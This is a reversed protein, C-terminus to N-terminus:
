KRDLLTPRRRDLSRRNANGGAAVCIRRDLALRAGRRRGTRAVGQRPRRSRHPRGDLEIRTVPAGLHRGDRIEGATGDAPRFRRSALRLAKAAPLEFRYCGHAGREPEIRVGDAVVHLDPDHIRSFGLTEAQEILRRNVEAVARGSERLPACADNWSLPEFTPHLEVFEGANAFAPRSGCDLFSEAPLGEALLVDHSELEVHWYSVTEVREQVITAGNALHIIPILARDVYVAHQPSLLLDRRPLGDGFAGKRVRVPLVELPWRHRTLDLERHGIWVIPRLAGSATVVNEGVTLDEVPIEGRETEILAGACYCASGESYGLVNLTELDTQSVTDVTGAYASGFLDGKVSSNWDAVDYGSAVESPSGFPLTVSTGNYSFYAQVNANYGSVFPEELSGAAAGPSAASADGAAAYHFLDLINYTPLKTSTNGGALIDTESEGLFATRGLTESIEHELTGVADYTNAAIGESQSWTFQDNSDLTVTGDALGAPAASTNLGLARADAFSIWFQGGNTPDTPFNASLLAAAAKQTASATPADDVNQIANYVQSYNYGYYETNSEGVDGPNTTPAYDFDLTVTINTTITSEFFDIATNLAQQYGTPLGSINNGIDIVFGM